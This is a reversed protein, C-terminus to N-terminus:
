HEKLFGEIERKQEPNEISNLNATIFGKDETLNKNYGLISPLNSQITFRLFRIEVNTPDSKVANDLLVKGQNVYEMKKHIVPTHKALGMTLAGKYASYIAQSNNSASVKQYLQECVVKDEMAKAYSKRVEDLFPSNSSTNFLIFFATILFM